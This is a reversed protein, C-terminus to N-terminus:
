KKNKKFKEKISNSTAKVKSPDVKSVSNMIGKLLGDTWQSIFGKRVDREVTFSGRRFQDKSPNEHWFVLGGVVNSIFNVFKKDEGTDKDIAHIELDDYFFDVFGAVGYTNGTMNFDLKELSGEVIKIGVMKMLFDDMFELRTNGLSGKLTFPDILGYEYVSELYVSAEDQLKAEAILTFAPLLSDINQIGLILGEIETIDVEAIEGTTQIAEFQLNSNKILISDCRFKLGLKAMGDQPLETHRDPLPYKKNKSFDAELGDFVIKPIILSDQAISVPYAISVETINLGINVKQWGFFDPFDTGSLNSHFDINKFNLTGEQIQNSITEASVKYVSDPFQYTFNEITLDARDLLDLQQKKLEDLSIDMMKLNFDFGLCEPGSRDLKFIGDSIRVMSIALEINSETELSDAEIKAQSSDKELVFLKIDPKDITISDISIGEGQLFNFADFGFIKIKSIHSNWFELTDNQKSVEFHILSITNQSFGIHSRRYDAKFGEGLAATIRAKVMQDIQRHIYSSIGFLILLLCGFVILFVKLIKKKSM